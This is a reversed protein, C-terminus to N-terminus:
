VFYWKLIEVYVYSSIKVNWRYAYIVYVKSSECHWNVDVSLEIVERDEEGYNHQTSTYQYVCEETFQTPFFM